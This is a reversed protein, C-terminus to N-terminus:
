EAENSTWMYFIVKDEFNELVSLTGYELVPLELINLLNVDIPIGSDILEVATLYGGLYPPFDIFRDFPIVVNINKIIM